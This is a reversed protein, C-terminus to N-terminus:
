VEFKLHTLFDVTDDDLSTGLARLSSQAAGIPPLKPDNRLSAEAAIDEIPRIDNFRDDLFSDSFTRLAEPPDEQFTNELDNDMSSLSNNLASLGPLNLPEIPPESSAAMSAQMMQALCARTFSSNFMHQRHRYLDFQYSTEPYPDSLRRMLTPRFASSQTPESMVTMSARREYSPLPYASAASLVSPETEMLSARLEEDLIKTKESIQKELKKKGRWIVMEKNYREKEAAALEEFEARTKADIEKWRAAITKAMNAFGIGTSKVHARGRGNQRPTRRARSSSLSGSTQGAKGNGVGEQVMREREKQFFLNYASLPRRPMDKPKKWPVKPSRRKRKPEKTATDQRTTGKSPTSKVNDPSVANPKVKRDGFQPLLGEAEEEGYAKLLDLPIADIDAMSGITESAGLSITFSEPKEPSLNSPFTRVM